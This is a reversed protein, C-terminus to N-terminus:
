AEEVLAQLHTALAAFVPHAAAEPDLFDHGRAIWAAYPPQYASEGPHERVGRWAMLGTARRAEPTRGGLWKWATHPFWWSPQQRAADVQACLWSLQTRLQTLPREAWRVPRPDFVAKGKSDGCLLLAHVPQEPRQLRLVAYQAWLPLLHRHEAPKALRAGLLTWSGDTGVFCRLEGRLAPVALVVPLRQRSTGLLGPARQRLTELADEAQDRVTAWALAGPLGPPLLGSDALWPPAQPPASGSGTRRLREFLRLPVADLPPLRAELRESEAPQREDLADLSLKLGQRLSYRPADRLWSLLEPLPLPMRVGHEAREAVRAQPDPVFPTVTARPDGAPAVAAAYTFLAPDPADDLRGPGAPAPDQGITQRGRRVGAAPRNQRPQFYRPAFPQLAHEIRWPLPRGPAPPGHERALLDLLEALPTAPNGPEDTLPDRGLFSLHLARRASMLAELFLYQDEDRTHRDGPRPHEEILNLGGAVAQRPFEGENLGLLCVVEFPIVRAPVMGCFTIAGRLFSQRAPSEALLDRLATRVEAIGVPPDQAANDAQEALAACAGHLLALAESEDPDAPDAAFLGEVRTELWRSWRSLPLQRSLGDRWDALRELLLDLAGLLATSPETVGPLPHIGAFSAFEPDAGSLYGMFLRDLAWSWTQRPEAAAGFTTKMAADFGWAVRSASLWTALTDLGGADLGLRRAIAPQAMLDLVEGHTLRTQDFSLLREFQALLPHLRLLARDALHYPLRRQQATPPAGIAGFVAPILEAYEGIAPAMVVIDRPHLEPHAALLDLLADRLVQLERLRTHCVHVRLSRDTRAALWQEPAAIPMGCFAPLLRQISQQLRGLLGPVQPEFAPLELEERVECELLQAHFQQGARGLAAVLAHPSEGSDPWAAPPSFLQRRAAVAPRELDGWWGQVPDLLYLHIACHRTLARLVSWTDPPLHNLGFLHLPELRPDPAPSHARALAALLEGIQHGRHPRREAAVLQRWLRAQWHSETGREAAALWDRRYVLYQTYLGALHDALEFRGPGGVPQAQLYGRVAPEDLGPLLAHIRWRLAERRWAQAEVVHPGLLTRKLRSLWEFPVEFKLNAAIGPTGDPGPLTAMAQKLWAGLGVHAVVINQPALVGPRPQARLRAILAHALAETQTARLVYLGPM